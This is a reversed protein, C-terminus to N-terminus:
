PQPALGWTSENAGYPGPRRDSKYHRLWGQTTLNSLARRVSTLPLRAVGEWRWLESPTVRATPHAQFWGLVRDEQRRAKGEGSVVEAVTQHSRVHYSLIRATPPPAPAISMDLALQAKPMM